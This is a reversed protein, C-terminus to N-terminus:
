GGAILLRELAAPLPRTRHRAVRRGAHRAAAYLAYEILDRQARSGGIREHEACVPELIEVATNWDRAVWAGFGRGSASVLDAMPGRADAILQELAAGEGAMAYALAAHMDAFGMGPRPFKQQAYQAIMTWRAPERPEGALEARFLFAASDTLVNLAPGWAGGRAVAAAEQAPGGPQVHTEYALWAAERHDLDLNWLAVHWGLHCHMLGARAYGAFWDQLWALAAVTEGAEYDVHTRIHAANANLPNGALSREINARALDIRGVEGQAFALAGLFWWDGGYHAAYGALFTELAAERGKLGSFGFLGFVGACPLLVMVDRPFEALHERIAALAAPADGAVLRSLAAVHGRERPTLPAAPTEARQMAARAQEGRGHVQHLRALLVHALAFDPDAAFARELAAEIGPQAALFLDVAEVYADRAADSETSLPLGYRDTRSM